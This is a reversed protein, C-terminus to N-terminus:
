NLGTENNGEKFREHFIKGSETNGWDWKLCFRKSSKEKFSHEVQQSISNKNVTIWSYFILVNLFNFVAHYMFFHCDLSLCM